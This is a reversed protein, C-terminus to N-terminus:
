WGRAVRIDYGVTDVDGSTWIEVSLVEIECGGM